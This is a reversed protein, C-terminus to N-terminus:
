RPQPAAGGPQQPQSCQVPLDVPGAAERTVSFGREALLALMATDGPLHFAGVAILVGGRDLEPAARDVMRRDREASLAIKRRLTAQYAPRGAPVEPHRGETMRRVTAADETRWAELMLALLKGLKPYNDIGYRLMELQEDPPFEALFALQEDVTELALLTRSARRAIDALESDVARTNPKALQVLGNSAAWVPLRELRSRPVGAEGYIAALREFDARGVLDSLKQSEPLAAAARLRAVTLQDLVLEKMVLRVTRVREIVKRRPFAECPAGLHITGYIWSPPVGPKELRFYLGEGFRVPTDAQALSPPLLLGALVAASKAARRMRCRWGAASSTLLTM